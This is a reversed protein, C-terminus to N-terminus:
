VKVIKEVRIAKEVRDVNEVEIAIYVKSMRERGQHYKRGLPPKPSRSISHSCSGCALTKVPKELEGLGERTNKYSSLFM